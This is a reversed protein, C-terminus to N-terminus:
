AAAGAEAAAPAGGGVTQLALYSLGYKKIKDMELGYQNWHREEDDVLTEFVKKSGSNANAACEMAFHNYDHISSQEMRAALDLMANVDHIKQVVGSAAMEVDGKLFLIREALLETHRMEEVATRFFLQSIVELGQDECHFHFYMYQHVATMEDAIGKNLLEISKEYM